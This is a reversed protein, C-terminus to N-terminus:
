HSINAGELVGTDTNYYMTVWASYENRGTGEYMGISVKCTIDQINWAMVYDDFHITYYVILPYDRSYFCFAFDEYLFSNDQSLSNTKEFDVTYIDPAQRFQNFQSKPLSYSYAGIQHTDCAKNGPVNKVNCDLDGVDFLLPFRSPATLKIIYDDGSENLTLKIKDYADVTEFWHDPWLPFDKITQPATQLTWNRSEYYLEEVQQRLSEYPVSFLMPYYVSELLAEARRPADLITLRQYIEQAAEGQGRAEMIRADAYDQLDQCSPFGREALDAAFSEAKGYMDLKRKLMALDTGDTQVDLVAQLYQRYNYAYAYAGLSKLLDIAEELNKKNTLDNGAMTLATEYDTAYDVEALGPLATCLLALVTLLALLRNKM